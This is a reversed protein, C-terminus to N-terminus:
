SADPLKVAHAMAVTGQAQLRFSGPAPHFNLRLGLSETQRVDRLTQGMGPVGVAQCTSAMLDLLHPEPLDTRGTVAVELSLHMDIDNATELLLLEIDDMHMAAVKTSASRLAHFRQQRLTYARVGRELASGVGGLAAATQLALASPEAPQAPDSPQGHSYAAHLLATLVLRLGFGYHVMVSATGILHNIFPRGCPRYGGDSLRLAIQCASAIAKLDQRLYGRRAAQTVLAAPTQALETCAMPAESRSPHQLAARLPDKTEIHNRIFGRVGGFSRADDIVNWRAAFRRLSREAAPGAWRRRLNPLEGLHWPAMALYFVRAAPEMWTAYGLQNAVLSAHIHEHVCVIGHDFTDPNQVVERRMLLCHFEAFGCPERRLSAAVDGLKANIHRHREAMILGNNETSTTLEGGAMHILDSRVDAGWLYLPGVIGAGTEEACALLAQLWGPQVIVDNDIFVTYPTVLQPAIRARAQNPWLGPELSVLVLGWNDCRQNLAARLDAPMGCDLVWLRYPKPTHQVIAELVALTLRWRERFSVVVTVRPLTELPITTLALNMIYRNEGHM